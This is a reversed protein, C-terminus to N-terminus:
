SGFFADLDDDLRAALEPDEVGPEREVAPALQYNALAERVAVAVVEPLGALALTVVDKVVSEQSELALTVAERVAAEQSEGNQLRIYARIAARVAKSKDEQAAYWAEIDSDRDDKLRVHIFM